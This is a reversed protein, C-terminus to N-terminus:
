SRAVFLIGVVILAIGVARGGSLPENFLVVSFVTVFVLPLSMFPYAYGVDLRTIAAMWLLAAALGGMLASLVWPNVSLKLLFLLNENLGGPLQGHRNVQWKVILQGYVVLLVTLSLYFYSMPKGGRAM